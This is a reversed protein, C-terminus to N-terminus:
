NKILHDTVEYGTSNVADIINEVKAKSNDFQVIANNNKYSTASKIIGALKNVERNVHEECAECSMGKISLEVTQITRKDAVVVEKETKPFFVKAYSPFTIMIASFLTVILLFTKSQIFNPKEDVVCGCEDIPQPRLKQYWAFGLIAITFGIFYPRAPAIWSFSSAISSTGAFLAILPTICCLSAAFATFVGASLLKGTNM